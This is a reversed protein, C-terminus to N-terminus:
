ARGHDFLYMVTPIFVLTLATSVTLGGIVAIAMPRQLEAGEGIGLAIPLMGFVTTATTLLIPKIRKGGAAAIAEALGAGRRREQEIFDLLVIANNVVTGSLLIIGIGSNINLTQGTLILLGSVGITAVPLSLMVVLPKSLSQFQSALVMYVLIVALALAFLMEESSNKIESRDGSMRAEYGTPLSLGGILDEARSLTKARDGDIDATILNVPSQESRLIRDRGRGEHLDAIKSLPVPAGSQTKVLIKFLSDKGIRDRHRLRLHLDIEDDKERYRTAVEGAVAARITSAITSINLGLSAALDRDIRVRLEPDGEDLSSKVNSVGKLPSIKAIIMQGLRVLEDTKRGYLEIALPGTQKGLLSAVVDESIRFDARVREGLRMERKLSSIIARINERGERKLILRITSTNSKVGSIREAINDEPDSGIKAYLFRTYPKALLLKEVSASVAATEELPTGKAATIELTFEGPDIAPMLESDIFIFLMGGLACLAAGSALVKRRNFLAYRIVREYLLTLFNMLRDSAEFATREVPRAKRSIFLASPPGGVALTSLMPILTFSSFMSCLLSFSVTLALERFVAGTIGSLFLIPLFVVISTLISAMVPGKVENVGDLVPLIPDSGGSRAGNHSTRRSAISDLVVIGADVMMGVGLALGGLSVANISIGSFYMLTFAGLMSVPISTAIIISSRCDKLFFWLLFFAILAGFLASRAVSDISARIFGSQDYVLQINFKGGYRRQLFDIKEKVLDCTEITNKGPEKRILLGVAEEGNTRIVCKRDRFGDTVEAINSLYIPTGAENRGVTVSAIDGITKFEGLTRVLYEIGNKEMNGAPLNHNSSDISDLVESLSLNHAYIRAADVAINVQRRYGGNIDVLAVGNTRELYPLIEKEIIKRVHQFDGGLSTVSYIMIPDAKPDFKIVISKGADQPLQTRAIDAKEKMEILALDMNAGWEFRATVLSLGEMSESNISVLGNVSSVAEEIYRTVLQETETPAANEYPTVVTLRPFEIDPLLQVPLRRLSIVGLLCIGCYVMLTTIRKRLFLEIM